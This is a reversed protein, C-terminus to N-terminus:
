TKARRERVLTIVLFMAAAILGVAAFDWRWHGTVLWYAVGGLLVGVLMLGLQRWYASLTAM